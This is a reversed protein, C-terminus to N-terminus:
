ATKIEPEAGGNAVHDLQGQLFDPYAGNRYPEPLKSYEHPLVKNLASEFFRLCHRLRLITTPRGAQSALNMLERLTAHHSTLLEQLGFFSSHLFTAEDIAKATLKQFEALREAKVDPDPSM